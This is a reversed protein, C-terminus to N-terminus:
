GTSEDRLNAAGGGTLEVLEGDAASCREITQKLDAQRIERRRRCVGKGNEGSAREEAAKGVDDVAGPEVDGRAAGSGELDVVSGAAGEAGVHDDQAVEDSGSCGEGGVEVAVVVDVSVVEGLPRAIKADVVVAVSVVVAIGVAGIEEGPM